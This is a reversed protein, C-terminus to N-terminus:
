SLQVKGRLRFGKGGRMTPRTGPLRLAQALDIGVPVGKSALRRPRPGPMTLPLGPEAGETQGQGELAVQL